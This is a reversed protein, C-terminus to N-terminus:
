AWLRMVQEMSEQLINRIEEWHTNLDESEELVEFKNKISVKYKKRSDVKMKLLEINYRPPKNKNIIGKLKVRMFFTLLVDDRSCDAGPYCIVQKIGNRFRKNGTVFDIMNKTNGGPSKWTWLRRPHHQFWTNLIVQGHMQFWDIWKEGRENKEGLGHPGVIDQFRQKGVKANLDGIM